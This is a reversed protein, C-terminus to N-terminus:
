NDESGNRSDSIRSQRSRSLGDNRRLCSGLPAPCPSWAVNSLNSARVVRLSKTRHVLKTEGPRLRLMRAERGGMAKWDGGILGGNTFGEVRQRGSDAPAPFAPGMKMSLAEMGVRVHLLGGQDGGLLKDGGFPLGAKLPDEGLFDWLQCFLDVGAWAEVETPDSEGHCRLRDAPGQCGTDQGCHSHAPSEM